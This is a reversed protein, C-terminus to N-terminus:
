GAAVAAGLLEGYIDTIAEVHREMPYIEGIGSALREWLGPTSSARRITDALSRADGARFHLGNAGDEVKEAMGGIDSCIVPRGHIFAEQIVLPSNEWWISPVIVWDVDAMLRGLESQRYRGRLSVNGGSRELLDAFRDQFDAAQIELNAGHVSLYVDDADDGLLGMAELAVTVGKYPNFQGFYGFRNRPRDEAPADPVHQPLRGYDEFRIREEPIGWDVYREMLFRSPALFLDVHDFHSRLLKERLFFRQEPIDPFCEHCRRPSATLCNQGDSARLMQGNRHCIALFEHLTYVIAVDPLTTRILTILDNGIFLTHQIHVVDPEVALLFDRFHRTHLAQDKATLTFFDFAKNSTHVFYENPDDGVASFPTDRGSGGREDADTRALFYPEFEDHERLARYLELAYGEAGGPRVDPHNHVVFLVRRKRM